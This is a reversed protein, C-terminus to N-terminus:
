KSTFGSSVVSERRAIKSSESEEGAVNVEPSSEEDSVKAEPSSMSREICSDETEVSSDGITGMHFRFRRGADSSSCLSSSSVISLSLMLLSGVSDDDDGMGLREVRM